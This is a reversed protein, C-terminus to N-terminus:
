AVDRRKWFERPLDIVEESVHADPRITTRKIVLENHMKDIEASVKVNMEARLEGVAEQIEARRERRLEVILQVLVDHLLHGETMAADIGAKLWANWSEDSQTMQRVHEEQQRKSREREEECRRQFEEAERRWKNMAACSRPKLIDPTSGWSRTPEPEDHGPEHEAAAGRLTEDVADLVARIRARERDAPTVL